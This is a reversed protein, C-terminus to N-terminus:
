DNGEGEKMLIDLGEQNYNGEEEKEKDLIQIRREISEIFKRLKPHGQILMKSNLDIYKALLRLQALDMCDSVNVHEVLPALYEKM